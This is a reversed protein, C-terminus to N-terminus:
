ATTDVLLTVKLQVRNDYEIDKIEIPILKIYKANVRNFCIFNNRNISNSLSNGYFIDDNSPTKISTWNNGDNSYELKFKALCNNYSIHKIVVGNIYKQQVLKIVLPDKNVYIEGGCIYNLDYYKNYANAIDNDTFKISYTNCGTNIPAELEPDNINFTISSRLIDRIYPLTYSEIENNNIIRSNDCNNNCIVPELIYELSEINNTNNIMNNYLLTADDNSSNNFIRLSLLCFLKEININIKLNFNPVNWDEQAIDLKGFGIKDIISYAQFLVLILYDLETSNSIINLLSIFQDIFKFNKIKQQMNTLANMFNLNTTYTLYVRFISYFFKAYMNDTDVNQENKLKDIIPNFNYTRLLADIINYFTAKIEALEEPNTTNDSKDFGLNVLFLRLESLKSLLNTKITVFNNQNTILINISPYMKTHLEGIKVITDLRIRNYKEENYDFLSLQGATINFIINLIDSKFDTINNEIPELKNRQLLKVIDIKIEQNDLIIDNIQNKIPAFSNRVNLETKNINNDLTFIAFLKKDVNFTSDDLLLNLRIHNCKNKLYNFINAINVGYLYILLSKYEYIDFFDPCIFLFIRILPEYINLYYIIKKISNRENNNSTISSTTITPININSKALEEIIFNIDINYNQLLSLINTKNYINYILKNFMIYTVLIVNNYIKYNDTLFIPNSSSTQPLQTSSSTQPLPSTSPSLGIWNSNPIKNRFTTDNYCTYYNYYYVNVPNGIYNITNNITPCSGEFTISSLSRCNEFATNHISTVSNPIIISTLSSCTTFTYIDIKQIGTPLNINILNYCGGFVNVGIDTLGDPLIISTINHSEAFANDVIKTVGIPISYINNIKGALYAILTTKNANFLVGDQVSYNPSNNIFEKLNSCGIFPNSDMMNLNPPLTISTLSSCYSFAFPEITTLSNPLIISTLNTCMSFTSYYINTINTNLQFNISKINSNNIFVNRDLINVDIGGIKSPIVIDMPPELAMNYGTISNTTADFMFYRDETPTLTILSTTQSIGSQFKEINKKSSYEYYSLKSM